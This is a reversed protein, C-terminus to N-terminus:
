VKRLRARCRRAIFSTRALEQRYHRPAQATTALHAGVIYGDGIGFTKCRDKRYRVKGRRGYGGGPYGNRIERGRSEPHSRVNRRVAAEGAMVLYFEHGITGETVIETGAPVKVVDAARSIMGLEKKNLSSFMQVHSLHDLKRDAAM